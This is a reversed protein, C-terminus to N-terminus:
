SAKEQDDPGGQDRRAIRFKEFRGKSGEIYESMPEVAMWRRGLEEAVAGTTNSGGFPDLVLDGETTLMNVFFRPLAAPMRAPHRKLEYERCYRSYADNSATNAMRLFNEGFEREEDSEEDMELANPPISGPHKTLFSEPSIVFEAPRVGDNYSGREHLKQMAPSYERLVRTNSAEPKDDPSMWWVHTYSDKVRIREITVWQAPSPLRAPNHCIFQQCVNLDASEAVAMLSKLPLLSMAPKGQVWANGLEMVLSGGPKLLKALRPALEKLWELYEDGNLNGYAKKRNLPFPPSFFVLQVTGELEDGKEDLFTEITGQYMAGLDTKYAETVTPVEADEGASITAVETM